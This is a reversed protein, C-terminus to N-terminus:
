LSDQLIMSNGDDDFFKWNMGYGLICTMSEGNPGINPITMFFTGSNREVSHGFSLIGIVNGFPQGGNRVEGVLIQSEEMLKSSTEFIFGTDGCYVPIQQQILRNLDYKKEPEIPPINTDPNTNPIAQAFNLISFLIYFFLTIASVGLISKLTQKM